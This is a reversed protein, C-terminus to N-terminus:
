NWPLCVLTGGTGQLLTKGVSQLNVLDIEEVKPDVLGKKHLFTLYQLDRMFNTRKVIGSESNIDIKFEEKMDVTVTQRMFYKAKAFYMKQLLNTVDFNQVDFNVPPLVVLVGDSALAEWSSRYGDICSSDIVIRMKQKLEPLWKNPQSEVCRVRSSLSELYEHHSKEACCYINAAEDSALAIVAQGIASIADTILINMGFLNVGKLSDKAVRLARYAPMWDQFLGLAKKGSVGSPAKIFNTADAWLFRTCGGSEFRGIVRDGPAFVSNVLAGVGEITEITGIVCEGPVHPLMQKTVGLGNCKMIDDHNITSAKTYFHTPVHASLMQTLHSCRAYM